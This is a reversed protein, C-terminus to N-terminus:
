QDNINLYIHYTYKNNIQNFIPKKLIFLSWSYHNVIAVLDCLETLYKLHGVGHTLPRQPSIFYTIMHLPLDCGSATWM